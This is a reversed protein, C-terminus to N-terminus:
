GLGARSPDELSSSHKQGKENFQHLYLTMIWPLLVEVVLRNTEEPTQNELEAQVAALVSEVEQRVERQPRTLGDAGSVARGWVAETLTLASRADLNRGHRQQIRQVADVLRKALRRMREEFSIDQATDREAGNPNPELPKLM